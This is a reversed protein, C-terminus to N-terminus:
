MVVSLGIFVLGLVKPIAILFFNNKACVCCALTQYSNGDYMIELPPNGIGHQAWNKLAKGVKEDEYVDSESLLKLQCM